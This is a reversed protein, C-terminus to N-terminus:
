PGMGKLALLIPASWENTTPETVGSDLMEQLEQHVM